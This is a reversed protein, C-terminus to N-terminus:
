GPGAADRLEIEMGRGAESAGTGSDVAPWAAAEAHGREVADVAEAMGTQERLDDPRLSLAGM